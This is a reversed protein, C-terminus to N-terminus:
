GTWPRPTAGPARLSGAAGPAAAGMARMRAGDDLLGGVAEALRGPRRAARAPRDRGRAGGRGHRRRSSIVAPRGAAAAEASVTGYPEALSPVVVLDFGSMAAAADARFGALEVRELAAAADCRTPTTTGARAAEGVITLRAGPRGGLFARAAEILELVAQRPELQGVFGVHRGAPAARLRGPPGARGLGGPLGHCWSRPRAPPAADGAVHDSAAAVARVTDWHRRTARM